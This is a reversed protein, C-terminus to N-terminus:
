EDRLAAVWAETTWSALDHKDRLAKVITADITKQGNPGVAIVDFYSVVNRQGPRHVRDESQLRTKLSYDNSLYIVTHAATLNLGMSGSAPTGVVVVPTNPTTRPDLLRLAENREEHKQGGWIRGVSIVGSDLERALRELEARFRCWVLLKLSPDEVLREKYWELFVDLKERGVEETEYIAPTGDNEGEIDAKIIGGIFGSTLQSLRLAKVVAQPASSVTSGTLWAVMEDRMEKYLKWTSGSLTATLTVSPLKEPLDLCQSKLRRLVYPAFRKQMDELNVWKVIQKQQWGGMVAYRARFHYYTKCDLIKPNMIKGQAFMDEPSNAIPTGNLLVVRGCKLRLEYCAKTQLAKWNKVASSEDLVLMTKEDCIKLLVERHEERRIYDYNTVIFRLPTNSATGSFWRRIKAHFEFIAAPTEIWLHKALEGLEPDYWVSRVAAPAVIVVRNVKGQYYLVQAADIVQKTKGAGMEDFLAFCGELVRGTAPNNLLTLAHIGEIQHRYPKLRCSSLDM